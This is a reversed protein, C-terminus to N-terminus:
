QNYGGQNGQGQFGSSSGGGGHGMGHPSSRSSGNLGPNRQISERFSRMISCDKWLHTAPKQDTGHKPCPQNLVADLEFRTVQAPPEKRRQNYSRAGTNAVFDDAKRKGNAGQNTPNYQQGKM